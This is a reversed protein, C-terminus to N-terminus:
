KSKTQTPCACFLEVFRLWEEVVKHPENRSVICVLGDTEHILAKM